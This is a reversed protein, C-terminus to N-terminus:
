KQARWDDLQAQMDAVVDNWGAAELRKLMEPVAIEPNLTGTMLGGWYEDVISSCVAYKNKERSYDYTFGLLPSIHARENVEITKEYTDADQGERVRSATFQCGYAWETAPNYAESISVVKGEENLNYHIGEIGFAILDYLESDTFMLNLVMMAREPNKSTASIGTLTSKLTTSDTLSIDSLFVGTYKVGAQSSVTAAAGPFMNTRPSVVYKGSALESGMDNRSAADKRIYGKEYWSHLTNLYQSMEKTEYKNRIKYDNATIDVYAPLYTNVVDVFKLEDCYSNLSFQLTSDYLYCFLNPENAKIQEFLPELDELRRVSRIDFNYKEIMDTMICAGTTTAMIQYNILAYSKGDIKAAEFYQEPIISQYGKGYGTILEDLPMLYGKKVANGFNFCWDATFCIDFTEGSMAALSVMEDYSGYDYVIFNVKCNLKEKLIRNVEEWVKEADPENPGCVYWTLEVYDLTEESLAFNMFSAVLIVLLLLTFLKKM